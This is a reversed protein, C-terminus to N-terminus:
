IAADGLAVDIEHLVARQIADGHEAEPQGGLAVLQRRASKLAARLLFGDEWGCEQLSQVVKEARDDCGCFPWECDIPDGYNTTRARCKVDPTDLAM